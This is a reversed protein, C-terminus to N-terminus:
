RRANKSYSYNFKYYKPTFYIEDDSLNTNCEKGGSRCFAFRKSRRGTVFPPLTKRDGEETETVQNPMASEPTPWFVSLDPVGWLLGSLFSLKTNLNRSLM